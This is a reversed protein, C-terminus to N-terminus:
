IPPSYSRIFASVRRSQWHMVVFQGARTERGRKARIQPPLPQIQAQANRVHGFRHWCQTYHCALQRHPGPLLSEHRPGRINQLHLPSDVQIRGHQGSEHHDQRDQASLARNPRPLRSRQRMFGERQLLERQTNQERQPTRQAKRLHGPSHRERAGNQDRERLQRKFILTSIM